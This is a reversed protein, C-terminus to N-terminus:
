EYPYTNTPQVLRYESQLYAIIDILEQVTMIDNYCRAEMKSAGEPTTLPQDSPAKQSIKHSPNVVSTVLEGYSKLKTVKGGLSVLPAGGSEGETSQVIDGIAHCDTCYLSQFLHKGSDVDGPPLVFGRSENRCATLVLLGAFTVFLLFHHSFSRCVQNVSM